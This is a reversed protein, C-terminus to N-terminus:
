GPCIGRRCEPPPPSRREAACPRSYGSSWIRGTTRRGQRRCQRSPRPSYKCRCSPMAPRPMRALTPGHRPARPRRARSSAPPSQLLRSAPRGASRRLTKDECEIERQGLCEALPDAWDEASNASRGVRELSFVAGAAGQHAGLERVRAPASAEHRATPKGQRSPRGAKSWRPRACTCSRLASSRSRWRRIPSRLSSRSLRSCRRSASGSRFSLSPPSSWQAARSCRARGRLAACRDGSCNRLRRRRLRDDPPRIAGDGCRRLDSAAPEPSVGRGPCPEIGHAALHQLHPWRTPGRRARRPRASLLRARRLDLGFDRLRAAGHDGEATRRARRRRLRARRLDGCRDHPAARTAAARGRHAREPGLDGDVLRCHPELALLGTAVAVQRGLAGKLQGRWWFFLGPLIFAAGVIRALLRHAWEWWFIGQLRRADHRSQAPRIAPNAQLPRVRGAVGRASLPPLIGTVPKWQTISLGSETLRTAGGVLVMLLSRPGRGRDLWFRVARRVDLSATQAAAPASHTIAM